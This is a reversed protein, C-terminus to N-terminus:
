GHRPSVQSGRIIYFKVPNFTALDPNNLVWMVNDQTLMEWEHLGVLIDGCRIGAKDAPSTEGPGRDGDPRRATGPQIRM